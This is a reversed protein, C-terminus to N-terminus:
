GVNQIVLQLTIIQTQYISVYMYNWELRWEMYNVYLIIWIIYDLSIKEDSQKYRSEMLNYQSVPIIINNIILM